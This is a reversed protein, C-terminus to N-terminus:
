EPIAASGFLTVLRAWGTHVLAPRFSVECICVAVRVTGYGALASVSVPDRRPGKKNTRSKLRRAGMSKRGLPDGPLKSGPLRRESGGRPHTLQFPEITRLKDLSRLDCGERTRSNFCRKPSQTQM